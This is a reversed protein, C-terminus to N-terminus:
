SCIHQDQLKSSCRLLTPKIHLFTVFYEQLFFLKKYQTFVIETETSFFIAESFFSTLYETGLYFFTLM